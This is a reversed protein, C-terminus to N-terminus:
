RNAECPLISAGIRMELHIFILTFVRAPTITCSVIYPPSRYIGYITDQVIIGLFISDSEIKRSLVSVTFALCVVYRPLDDLWGITYIDEELPREKLVNHRLNLM